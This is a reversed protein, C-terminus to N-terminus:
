ERWQRRMLVRQRTMEKAQKRISRLTWCLLVVQLGGVIVLLANFLWVGWDAWDRKPSSLTVPPLKSIGVTHQLDEPHQESSDIKAPGNRDTKAEAPSSLTEVRNTARKSKVPPTATQTPNDAAKRPTPPSAQVVALLMALALYKM